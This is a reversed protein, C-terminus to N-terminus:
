PWRGADEPGPVDYRKPGAELTMDEEEVKLSGQPEMPGGLYDLIIELKLILWHAVKVGRQWTVQCLRRRQATARGVM